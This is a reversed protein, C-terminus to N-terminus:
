LRLVVLHAPGHAGEAEERRDFAGRVFCRDRDGADAAALLDVVEGGALGLVRYLQKCFRQLLKSSRSCVSGDYQLVFSRPELWRVIVLWSRRVFVSAALAGNCAQHRLM